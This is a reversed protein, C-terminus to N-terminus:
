RNHVFTDGATRLLFGCALLEALVAACTSADLTWLRRAQHATLRLGPMELYDARARRIAELYYRNPELCATEHHHM